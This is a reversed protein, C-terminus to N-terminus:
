SKKGQRYLFVGRLAAFCSYFITVLFPVTYTVYEMYGQYMPMGVINVSSHPLVLYQQLITYFFLVIVLMIIDSLMYVRKEVASRAILRPYFGYHAFTILGLLLAWLLLGWAHLFTSPHASRCEALSSYEGELSADPTDAATIQKYVCTNAASSYGIIPYTQPMFAHTKSSFLAIFFLCATFFLPKM